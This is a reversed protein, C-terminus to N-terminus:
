DQAKYKAEIQQALDPNQAKWLPYFHRAECKLDVKVYHRPAIKLKKEPEKAAEEQGGPPAGAPGLGPLAPPPPVGPPPVGTLPGRGTRTPGPGFGPAPSEARRPESVGAKTVNIGQIEIRWDSMLLRRVLVPIHRFEMTASLSFPFANYVGEVGRRLGVSDSGRGGSGEATTARGSSPEIPFVLTNEFSLTDISAARVRHNYLVVNLDREDSISVAAEIARALRLPRWNIGNIEEILSARSAPELDRLRDSLEAFEHNKFLGILDDRYRVWRLDTVFDALDPRDKNSGRLDRVFQQQARDATVEVVREYIGYRGFIEMLDLQESNVLIEQLIAALTEKPMAQLITSLAGPNVNQVVDLLTKLREDRRLKLEEVLDREAQNTLLDVIDKRLWFNVQANRIEGWTPLSNGWYNPFSVLTKPAVGSAEIQAGVRETQRFYFELWASRSDVEKKLPDDENWFLKVQNSRRQRVILEQCKRIEAEVLDKLEKEREIWFKNPTQDGKRALSGLTDRRSELERIRGAYIAGQARVVLSYFLLAGACVVGVIIWFGFKKLFDM